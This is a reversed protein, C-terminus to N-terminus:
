ENIKQKPYYFKIKEQTLCPIQSIFLNNKIFYAKLKINYKNILIMLLLVPIKSIFFFICLFEIENKISPEAFIQFAKSEFAVM